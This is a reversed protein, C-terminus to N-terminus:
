QVPANEHSEVSGEASEFIAVFEDAQVTAISDDGEGAYLYVDGDPDQRHRAATVEMVAHTTIITYDTM